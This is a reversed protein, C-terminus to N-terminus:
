VRQNEVPKKVGIGRSLFEVTLRVAEPSRLIKYHGSGALPALTAGQVLQAYREGHSFPVVEDNPDHIVLTRARIDPGIRDADVAAFPLSFHQEIWHQMRDVAKGRMGLMAAFKELFQRPHRPPAILVASIDGIRVQALVYAAAAAGLSHAILYRIGPYMMLVDKVTLIFNPLSSRKGKSRGHGVHDIAIAAMGQKLLAPLFPAFQLGWGSWGHVLLVTPQSSPDGWQYLTVTGSSLHAEHMQPLPLDPSVLLKASNPRVPTCFLKAGKIATSEPAFLAGLSFRLRYSVFIFSQITKKLAIQLSIAKM